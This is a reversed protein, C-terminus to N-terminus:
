PKCVGCPVYGQKNARNKTIEIADPSDRVYRCEPRHFRGRDPIVVVRGRASTRPPPAPVEDPVPSAAAARPSRRTGPRAASPRAGASRRPSPRAGTAAAGDAAGARPGADPAAAPETDLDEDAAHDEDLDDEVVQVDYAQDGHAQDGHIGGDPRGAEHLAGEDVQEEGLPVEHVPTQEAALPEVVTAHAPAGDAVPEGEEDHEADPDAHGDEDAEDYEEDDYEDYTDAHEALDDDAYEEAPVPEAVATVGPVVALEQPGAVPGAAPAAPGSTGAEEPEDAEDVQDYEDYEDDEYLEAAAALAEDPRCVGCATFGEERADEVAIAEAEKGAVFRCGEIHYRPRGNIVLVVGESAEEEYGEYDDYEEDDYEEVADPAPHPEDVPARSTAGAADNGDPGDAQPEDPQPAGTPPSDLVTSGRSGAAVATEALPPAAGAVPASREPAPPTELRELLAVSGGSRAPADASSSASAASASGPVQEDKRQRVGFVLSLFSVASTAISLYILPLSDVLVGAILLVLALVVLVGSIVIM